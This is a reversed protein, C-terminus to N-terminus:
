QGNNGAPTQTAGNAGANANANTNGNENANGNSAAATTITVSGGKVVTTPSIDQVISSLDSSGKVTSTIGYSNLANKAEALTKGILGLSGVNITEQGTSVTIDVSSGRKVSKGAAVSQSIVNGSAVTDSTDQNVTGLTLGASTLTSEADSRSKGTLDPVTVVDAGKSITITVTQGIELSTNSAPNQDMVKGSAITDSNGYAVNVNFGLQKLENTADEQSMGTLSPVNATQPPQKGRSVVLDVKTGKRKKKGSDPKISQSIVKGEEVTSSYKEKVNGVKLGADELAKKASKEDMGVVNPVTTMNANIAAEQQVEQEHSWMAGATIGIVAIIAVIAIIIALKRRDLKKKGDHADQEYPNDVSADKPSAAMMDTQTVSVHPDKGDLYMALADHLEAASSFRANPDKAMCKLIIRNMVQDVEPNADSPPVPAERAQKLAVTVADNGDFPVHGTVCEYMVIGLSYIDSAPTVELGRTQEPSIYQATGLVNSGTTIHVDSPRAIGFDMIKATKNSTIMINQPKIDRHVIGHDHAVQLGDCVQMAIEATAECSIRGNSVIGHKLDTGTLLEMVIYYTDANEDYGWDYVSVINPSQLQAASKAELYFREKFQEDEAYQPLMMKVAVLRDLTVDTARYVVAMGGIGIREDLRYRGGLTTGSRDPGTRRPRRIRRTVEADTATRSAMRADSPPPTQASIKHHAQSASPQKVDQMMRTGDADAISRTPITKDDMMVGHKREAVDDSPPAKARTDSMLRVSEGDPMAASIPM